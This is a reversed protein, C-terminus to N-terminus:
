FSGIDKIFNGGLKNLSKNTLYNFIKGKSGLVPKDYASMIKERYEPLVLQLNILKDNEIYRNKISDGLASYGEKYLKEVNIASCPTQRTGTEFADVPSFINPIWDGKDGNCIKEHLHWAVEHEKLKPWIKKNHADWFSVRPNMLCQIFDQDRSYIVTEERASFALTGIIDDAECRDVQIMKYPFVTKIEEKIKDMYNFFLGWDFDSAEKNRARQGKYTPTIDRRWYNNSDCALVMDGHKAGFRKKVSLITNLATHRLTGEDVEDKKQAFANAIILSSFDVLIM